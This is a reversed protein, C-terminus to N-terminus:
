VENDEPKEKIGTINLYQLQTFKSLDLDADVIRGDIPQIIYFTLKMQYLKQDIKITSFKKTKKELM